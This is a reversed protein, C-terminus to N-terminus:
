YIKAKSYHRGEPRLAAQYRVQMPHLHDSTRIREGRGSLEFLQLAMAKTPPTKTATQNFMADIKGRENSKDAGDIWKSYVKLLMQMNAHGLQKSVWMPNAGAMLNLTAYTHRTQYFNREMM